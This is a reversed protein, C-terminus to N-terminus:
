ANLSGFSHVASYLKGIVTTALLHNPRRVRLWLSPVARYRHAPYRLIWLEPYGSYASNSAARVGLRLLFFSLRVKNLADMKPCKNWIQITESAKRSSFQNQINKNNSSISGTPYVASDIVDPSWPKVSKLVSTKQSFNLFHTTEEGFLNFRFVLLVM